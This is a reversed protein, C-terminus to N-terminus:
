RALTESLIKIVLWGPDVIEIVPTELWIVKKPSRSLLNPTLICSIRWPLYLDAPSIYVRLLELASFLSCYWLITSEM